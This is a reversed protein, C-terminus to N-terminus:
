FRETLWKSCAEFWQDKFDDMDLDHLADDIVVWTKDKSSVAKLADKAADVNCM